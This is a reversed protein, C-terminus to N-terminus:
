RSLAAMLALLGFVLIPAALASLCWANRLPRLLVYAGFTIGTMVLPAIAYRTPNGGFGPSSAIAMSVYVWLPAAATLLLFGALSFRPQEM